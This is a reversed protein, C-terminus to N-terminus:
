FVVVSSTIGRSSFMRPNEFVHYRGAISCASSSSSSFPKFIRYTAGTYKQAEFSPAKAPLPLFSKVGDPVKFIQNGNDVAAGFQRSFNPTRRTIHTRVECFFDLLQSRATFKVVSKWPM